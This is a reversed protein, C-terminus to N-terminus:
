ATLTEDRLAESAENQPPDGEISLRQRLLKVSEGSAYQRIPGTLAPWGGNDAIRRYREAAELTCCATQPQLVPTPIPFSPQVAKAAICKHSM